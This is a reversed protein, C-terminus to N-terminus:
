MPKPLPRLLTGVCSRAYSGRRVRSIQVAGLLLAGSSVVLLEEELPLDLREPAGHVRGPPLEQFPRAELASPLGPTGLLRDRALGTRGLRLLIAMQAALEWM